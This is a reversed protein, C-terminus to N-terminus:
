AVRAVAAARRVQGGVQGYSHKNSHGGLRLLQDLFLSCKYRVLQCRTFYLLHKHETHTAIPFAHSQTPLHDWGDDDRMNEYM